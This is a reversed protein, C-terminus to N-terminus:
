QSLPDASNIQREEDAKQALEVLEEFEGSSRAMEAFLSETQRLLEYPRDYEVVRGADMVMIRDYDIVSRLRHAITLVTTDKFEQRITVQLKSDTEYDISATAEDLIIIQPAKLLSRALCVLQRQGQSINQGNETVASDLNHFMQQSSFGNTSDHEDDADANALDDSLLHSRRLAEFIQSDSYQDFPDLNSRLTGTFLTPDQPIIALARRLDQLGIKSIDIGDIKIFGEEAELFRFFAAAMSSKGAGTRGVIGVKWGADVGFSVNNLAYPLDPAYRLSLGSVEIAGKLPWGSPPRFDSVVDPAEQDLQLYEEVREASNMNMENVASLLVLWLMNETFTIAFTLCLGALGADVTGQRLLLFASTFTSVLGGTVEIRLSMWRNCAWLAGYPRSNTDVKLMSVYAFRSECGYARITCLGALTEGFHQYIPSRTVSQIRKLERSSQLYYLNIYYFIVGIAVGAILFVPVIASILVVVVVLALVSHAFSLLDPAIVQDISEIDKSFRNMIRGVPTIDFFRPTAKMVRHLLREYIDVSAVLSGYFVIGERLFSLLIYICSILGYILLYYVLSSESTKTEGGNDVELAVDEANESWERIWWSQAVNGIQHVCIITVVAIWYLKSGMAKFYRSYVESKVRGIDQAEAQLARREDDEDDDEEEAAAIEDSMGREFVNEEGFEFSALSNEVVAQVGAAEAAAVLGGDESTTSAAAPTKLLAKDWKIIGRSIAENPSGSFVVGGNKMVVVFSAGGLVLNVHHSVLICTRGHMLPGTVGEEYITLASSADVASLCDDLLVHKARSYLARALSIRQKQGGSLAIGKEGVQTFEGKELMEFDRRLACADICTEYRDSEYKSGFLINGRITDNLLWASQACYAVSNSLKSVPDYAGGDSGATSALFVKGKMLTMEGLLALLLSSKGSGTPGVIVSLQGVAFRINLNALQFSGRSREPSPNVDWTFSANQFGIEPSRDDRESSLQEYKGTSDELMFKQVRNMSVKANILEAVMSSLRDMPTRLLNFLAVSSFAISPTLERKAVLTYFGFTAFTILTPFGFWIIVAFTWLIYRKRLQKIEKTRIEMLRKTFLSEWSFFKIIKISQLVENTKQIRKDTIAMLNGQIKGFGRSFFYNIPLLGFMLTAGALSSPGLNRYLLVLSVVIMVIGKILQHMGAVAESITNSDIAMLNIISGTTMYDETIDPKPTAAQEASESSRASGPPKSADNVAYKRALAKSYVESVLLARIKIGLRRFGWMSQASVVSGLLTALFLFAVYGLAISTSRAGTELYTLIEQVMITPIFTLLAYLFTWIVSATLEASCYVLISVYFSHRKRQEEFGHAVVSSRLDDCLDWVDDLTLPETFGKRMLDNVWSFTLQSYLSSINEKWPQLGKRVEIYPPTDGLPSALAIGCLCTIIAFEAASLQFQLVPAAYSAELYLQVAVFCWSTAYFIALHVSAKYACGNLNHNPSRLTSLVFAYLWFAIASGSRLILDLSPDAFGPLLRSALILSLHGVILVLLLLKELVSRATSGRSAILFLETSNIDESFRHLARSSARTSLSMVDEDDDDDDDSYRSSASLRSQDLASADSSSMQILGGISNANDVNLYQHSGQSRSSHARSSASRARSRFTWPM